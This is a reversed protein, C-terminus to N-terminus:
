SEQLEQNINFNPLRRYQLTTAPDIARIDNRIKYVVTDDKFLLVKCSKSCEVVGSCKISIQDTSSPCFLRTGSLTRSSTIAISLKWIKSDEIKM